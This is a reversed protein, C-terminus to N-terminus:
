LDFEWKKVHDEIMVEKRSAGRFDIDINKRYELVYPEGELMAQSPTYNPDIDVFIVKKRAIRRANSLVKQRAARPMEHTAFMCTVVDFSNTEGWTEANGKEFKQTTRPIKISKWRAMNLFQDSTDVGIGWPVTSM